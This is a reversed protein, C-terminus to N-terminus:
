SAKRKKKSDEKKKTLQEVERRLIRTHASLAPLLRNAKDWLEPSSRDLLINDACWKDIRDLDDDRNTPLEIKLADTMATM